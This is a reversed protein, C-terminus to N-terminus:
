SEIRCLRSLRRLYLKRKDLYFALPRAFDRGLLGNVLMKSIDRERTLVLQSRALVNRDAESVQRIIQRFADQARPQYFWMHMLDLAHIIFARELDRARPEGSGQIGGPKALKVLADEDPFLLELRTYCDFLSALKSRYDWRRMRLNAQSDAYGEIVSAVTDSAMKSIIAAAPVLYAGPAPIGCAAALQALAWNYFVAVPVALASRAVAGASARPSDGRLTNRACLYIANALGLVGFVGWPNDATTIHLSRELLAVRVVGELLLVSFGTFMLSDCLRSM